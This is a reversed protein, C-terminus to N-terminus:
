KAFCVNFRRCGNNKSAATSLKRSIEGLWSQYFNSDVTPKILRSVPEERVFSFPCNTWSSTLNITPLGDPTDKSQTDVQDSEQREM